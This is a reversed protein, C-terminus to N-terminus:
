CSLTSELRQRNKISGTEWHKRLLRSLTRSRSRKKSLKGLIDNLIFSTYSKGRWQGTFEWRYGRGKSWKTERFTM